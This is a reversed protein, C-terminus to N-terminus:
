EEEGFTTDRCKPCIKSILLERYGASLMPLANQVLEGAQWRKFNEEPVHFSNDNGCMLCKVNIQM